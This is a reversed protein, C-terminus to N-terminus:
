CSSSHTYRSVHVFGEHVVFFKHLVMAVDTHLYNLMHGCYVLAILDAEGKFKSVM